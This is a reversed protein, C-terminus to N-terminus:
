KISLNGSLPRFSLDSLVTRLNWMQYILEGVPSPFTDKGSGGKGNIFKISLNGSLPRFITVNSTNFNGIYKISLNGSLPYVYIFVITKQSLYEISDLLPFIYNDIIPHTNPM